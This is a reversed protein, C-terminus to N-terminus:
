LMLIKNQRQRNLNKLHYYRTNLDGDKIWKARSKQFWEMEEQKLIVDLELQLQKELRLLFQHRKGGDYKKQIGGLYALLEAKRKRICGFTKDRWVRLDSELHQLKQTMGEGKNWSTAVIENFTDHTAWASEFRFRRGGTVKGMDHPFIIIPHHDSFVVRPLVCVVANPFGM